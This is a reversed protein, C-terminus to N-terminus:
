HIIIYKRENNEYEETTVKYPNDITVEINASQGNKDDKRYVCIRLNSKPSFKSESFVDFNINNSKVQRVVKEYEKDKKDWTVTKDKGNIKVNYQKSRKVLATFLLEDKITNQLSIKAKILHNGSPNVLGDSMKIKRNKSKKSEKTM